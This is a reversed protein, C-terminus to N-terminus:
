ITGREHVNLEGVNPAPSSEEVRVLLANKKVQSGPWIAVRAVRGACPARLQMQMKMSELVVLSQGQVVREGERVPVAVVMGPMPAVLDGTQHLQPWRRSRRHAPKVCAIIRRGAALVEYTSREGVNLHLELNQNGRRLLYLGKGSLPILRGPLPEGDVLLQTDTVNVRYEREGISVCYISM